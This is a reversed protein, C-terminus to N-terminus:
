DEGMELIRKQYKAWEREVLPRILDSLYRARDVGEDDALKSIWHVLDGDLKVTRAPIDRKKRGVRVGEITTRM